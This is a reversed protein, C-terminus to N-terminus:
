DDSYRQEAWPEGRMHYGRREWFGAKDAGIVEIKRLWKASKWFYLHPVVVRVPGGHVRSLPAGEWSHAILADPDAFDELLLNTTYGDHSRLMVARADATPRVIDLLTRTTVGQWANDYRSWTTVCHIDSVRRTQPLAMFATWDWSAPAEVAGTVDLRFAALPVDPQEGLDLVPWDQVLHQGPPLRDRAPQGPRGTLFRHERAWRTKTATLKTPEAPGAEPPPAATTADEPAPDHIHDSM